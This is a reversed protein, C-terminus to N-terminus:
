EKFGCAVERCEIHLEMVEEDTLNLRFHQGDFTICDDPIVMSWIPEGCNCCEEKAFLMPVTDTSNTATM